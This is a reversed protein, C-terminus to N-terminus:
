HGWEHCTVGIGLGDWSGQTLLLTGPAIDMGEMRRGGLVGGGGMAEDGFLAGMGTSSTDVIIYRTRHPNGRGGKM